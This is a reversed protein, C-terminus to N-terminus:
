DYLSRQPAHKRPLLRQMFQEGRWLGKDCVEALFLLFADISVM